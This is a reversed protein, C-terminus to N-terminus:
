AMRPPGRRIRERIAAQTEAAFMSEGLEWQAEIWWTAGAAAYSGVLEAAAQPDDLPVKGDIVIDFPTGAARHAVTYTMIERVHEPTVTEFKGGAGQVAALLGDYRLAREM